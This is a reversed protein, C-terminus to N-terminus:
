VSEALFTESKKTEVLGRVLGGCEEKRISKDAGKIQREYSEIRDTHVPTFFVTVYM